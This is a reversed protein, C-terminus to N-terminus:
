KDWWLPTSVKDPGGLLAEAAKVAAGNTNKEYDIFPIRKPRSGGSLDANESNAVPYLVPLKARRIDAWAEMGDPYLALWKQTAIQLKQMSADSSFKVPANNLAPSKLYDEPAIPSATSNTYAAIATADTIGWQNM